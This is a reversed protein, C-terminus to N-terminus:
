IMLHASGPDNIYGICLHTAEVHRKAPHKKSSNDCPMKRALELINKSISSAFTHRKFTGKVLHKKPSYDYPM